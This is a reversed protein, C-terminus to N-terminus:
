HENTGPEVIRRFRVEVEVIGCGGVCKRNHKIDKISPHVRVGGAAYGLEDEFDVRCMYGVSPNEDTTIPEDDM